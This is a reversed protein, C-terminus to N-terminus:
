EGQGKSFGQEGNFEYLNEIKIVEFNEEALCKLLELMHNSKLGSPLGLALFRCRWHDICRTGEFGTPWVVIGRNSLFSLEYSLSFKQTLALLSEGLKKPSTPTSSLFVDTGVWTKQGSKMKEVEPNKQNLNLIRKEGANLFMPQINKPSEGLFKIVANAFEETTAKKSSFGERFIDATHIGSELTVAWAKEITEAYEGLNLHQLMMLASNLLGSPNAINKGSIDPASGHIAEFVSFEDGLNASGALGVSGSVEAAIDSIIDGYLNGTVVVDFRNPSAAIKASGIDIIMHEQEIEPYEGGIQKFVKHFLGDTLKMINDKSMCTIKKRGNTKAYEFAYRVIKEVGTISVLKLCQFADWSQRHEIGSYLDEENERIIVMDMKPCNANVYPMLTRCPRVNSYLGLTKRLTVNISKYGGGQPTTMPAKLVVKHELIESWSNKTVGTTEGTLYVKEGMEIPIFELPVQAAKLISLTANMIEPGIGDGFAVCVAKKHKLQTTM